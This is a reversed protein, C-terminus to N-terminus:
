PEIPTEYVPPAFNTGDWTYGIGACPQEGCTCDVWEGNLNENAWVYSGVIIESVIGANIQAAYETM